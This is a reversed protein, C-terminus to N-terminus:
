HEWNLEPKLFEKPARPCILGIPLHGYNSYLIISSCENKLYLLKM